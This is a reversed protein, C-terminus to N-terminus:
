KKSKKLKKELLDLKRYEISLRQLELNRNNEFKKFNISNDVTRGYSELGNLWGFNKNFNEGVMDDFSPKYPNSIFKVYNIQQQVLMKQEQILKVEDNLADAFVVISVLVSIAFLLKKM